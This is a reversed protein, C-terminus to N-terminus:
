DNFIKSLKLINNEAEKTCAFYNEITKEIKCDKKEQEYKMTYISFMLSFLLILFVFFKNLFQNKIKIEKYNTKELLKWWLFLWLLPRLIYNIMARAEIWWDSTRFVWLINTANWVIFWLFCWWMVLFHIIAKREQEKQEKNM